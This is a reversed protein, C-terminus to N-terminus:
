ITGQVTDLMLATRGLMLNMLLAELSCTFLDKQKENKLEIDDHASRNKPKEYLDSRVTLREVRAVVTQREYAIGIDKSKVTQEPDVLLLDSVVQRATAIM